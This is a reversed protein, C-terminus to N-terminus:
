LLDSIGQVETIQERKEKQYNRFFKHQKIQNHLVEAYKRPIMVQEGRLIQITEGNVTVNVEEPEGEIYPLMYPVKENAKAIQEETEPVPAAKGTSATMESKIQARMEAEIEAKIEAKLAEIDITPTPAAAVKAATAEANTNKAAM